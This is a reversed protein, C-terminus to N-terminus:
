CWFSHKNFLCTTFSEKSNTIQMRTIYCETNRREDQMLPQSYRLFHALALDTKSFTKTMRAQMMM